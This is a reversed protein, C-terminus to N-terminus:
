SKEAAERRAVLSRKLTELEEPTFSPAAKALIAAFQAIEEDTWPCGLNGDPGESTALTTGDPALFAFWPIGGAASGRTRELLGAGGATRDVDIKQLTLHKGLLPAVDPSRLWDEFRHCWGCWPAGFTLLLPKQAERTRALAADLLDQAKWPTARHAALFALVKAPDHGEGSELSGTEQHVLPKGDADLVTLYPIGNTTLDAGYSAALEMNKDRRGIDIKVVEYEYLLERRLKEDQRFCGDLRVCWICWNAGWQLLVRRNEAKARALAAAVDAAADASEDYVPRKEQQEQVPEDTPLPAPAAPIAALLALLPAALTANM